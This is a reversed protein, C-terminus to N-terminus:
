SAIRLWGEACGPVPIKPLPLSRNSLREGAERKRGKKRGKPRAAAGSQVRQVKLLLRDRKWM